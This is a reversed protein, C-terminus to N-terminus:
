EELLEAIREIEKVWSEHQESSLVKFGMADYSPKSPIPTALASVLCRFYYNVGIYDLSAMM